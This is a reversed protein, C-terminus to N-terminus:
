PLAEPHQAYWAFWRAYVTALGPEVTRELLVSPPESRLDIGVRHGPALELTRMSGDTELPVVQRGAPSDFVAIRTMRPWSEAPPPPDVPFRLRGTVFYRGYPNRQYTRLKEPAPALVTTDPYAALWDVWRVLSAPLVDLRAGVTAAPGAIARASLQSWLSERGDARRDYLLLNSDHLLGSVGFETTVDGLRRDFVVVSDCLPHYTVALPVGGLSDNVVEHWNMVRLPYARAEGGLAVGIVLDTPVLYKGRHERNFAAVEGGRMLPPDVLTPLGDRPLGSAVLEARPVSLNSLDFGYSSPDSGDGIAAGDRRLAPWLTWAAALAVLVLSLAVIWGGSRWDLMRPRVARRDPAPDPRM